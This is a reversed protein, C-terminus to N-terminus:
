ESKLVQALDTQAAKLIHYSITLLTLLIVILIPWIFLSGTLEIRYPFNILWKQMLFYGVPLALMLAMVALTLYNKAFLIYINGASGGLVKRIGIEKMRTQTAFNILGLLGFCAVLIGLISFVLILKGTYAENKYISQIREDLFFMSFPKNPEFESWKNSLFQVLDSYSGPAVKLALYAAWSENIGIALPSLETRLSFAHFDKIVGIVRGDEMAKDVAKQDSFYVLAKENVLFATSDTLINKDFTRGEAMEIGFTKSFDFDTYFFPMMQEEEKNEIEFTRTVTKEGIVDSITSASLIRPSQNLEEKFVNIQDKVQSGRIPIMILEETEFGLDKKLLYQHQRFVSITSFILLAAVAFQFVVLTKRVFTNKNKGTLASARNDLTSDFSALHIAPYLGALIGVLLGALLYYILIQFNWLLGMHLHTGMLQNFYPLVVIALGIALILAVYTILISEVLLQLILYWKPAGLVKRLAIEKARELAHSTSLNIFNVIAILLIFLGISLFIFPENKSRNVEIEGSYNDGLHIETIARLAYTRNDKYSDPQHRDKFDEFQNELTSPDMHPPLKVYTHVATWFWREYSFSNGTAAFIDGINLLSAIANFTFHANKPPDKAIGTIQLPLKGEFQLTEGVVDARGFMKKATSETLVISQPAKLVQDAQGEILDFSFLQFFTSDAFFLKDEYFANKSGQPQLVPIKRFTQYLRVQQIEPYESQLVPGFPFPVKSIWEEVGDYKSLQHIRYIQDGEDHFRDYSKEYQFFLSLILCSAIGLSFGFLNIFTTFKRKKFNRLAIIISKIIMSRFNEHSLTLTQRSNWINFSKFTHYAYLIQYKWIKGQEAKSYYYEHLDGQVEDLYEPQCFWELLHDAWAPPPPIKKSHNM